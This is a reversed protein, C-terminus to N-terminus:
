RNLSILRDCYYCHGLTYLLAKSQRWTGPGLITKQTSFISWGWKIKELPRGIAGLTDPYFTIKV